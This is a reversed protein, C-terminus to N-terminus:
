EGLGRRPERSLEHDFACSKTDNPLLITGRADLLKVPVSPRGPWNTFHLMTGVPTAAVEANTMGHDIRSDTM